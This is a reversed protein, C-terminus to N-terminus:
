QVEVIVTVEPAADPETAKAPDPRIRAGPPLALKVKLSTTAFIASLDIPETLVRLPQEDDPRPKGALLLTLTRPDPTLALLVRGAPLEGTTAVEV